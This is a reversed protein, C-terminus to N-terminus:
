KNKLAYSPNYRDGSKIMLEGPKEIKGYLFKSAALNEIEARNKRFAAMLKKDKEDDAGFDDELAERSICCSFRKQRDEAPFFIVERDIDHHPRGGPFSLQLEPLISRTEGTTKLLLDRVEASIQNLGESLHTRWKPGRDWAEEWADKLDQPRRAALVEILSSAQWFDKDIKVVNEERRRRAVILKHVAYRQPSPVLVPIGAGYLVVARVPRTILFDLFRLQEADTSLADLHQPEDSDPGRNPTLFDVRLGGKAQYRTTQRIDHSHPIARFTPEALRLVELMPPIADDVFISIDKFQAIDIDLSHIAGTPLRVGLMAAYTQYAITGVMVARLRFIGAKSLAELVSGELDGLKPLTVANHLSAVLKRREKYDGLETKQEEIMELLEPTEPGVYKQPRGPEDNSQFYWYRRGNRTKSVFAGNDPFDEAFADNVARDLLDAYVTQLTLPMEYM